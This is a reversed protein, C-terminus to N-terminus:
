FCIMIIFQLLLMSTCPDYLEYMTNFDPIKGNDVLYIIAFNKVKPAISRLIEDMIICEEDYDHGFRIM